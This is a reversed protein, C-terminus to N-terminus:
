EKGENPILDGMKNYLAKKFDDDNDLKELLPDIAQKQWYEMFNKMFNETQKKEEEDLSSLVQQYKTDNLLAKHVDKYYDEAKM